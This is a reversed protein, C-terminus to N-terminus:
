LEILVANKIKTKPIFTKDRCLLGKEKVEYFGYGTYPDFGIYIQIRGKVKTGVPPWQDPYKYTNKVENKM